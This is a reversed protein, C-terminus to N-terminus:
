YTSSILIFSLMLFRTRLIGKLTLEINFKFRLIMLSLQCSQIYFVSDLARVGMLIMLSLQCSQIYFVSDLARVGMDSLAAEKTSPM